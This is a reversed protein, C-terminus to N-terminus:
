RKFERLFEETRGGKAKLESINKRLEDFQASLARLRELDAKDEERMLVFAKELGEDTHPLEHSDLMELLRLWFPADMRLTSTKGLWSAPVVGAKM